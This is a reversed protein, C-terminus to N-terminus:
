SIDRWRNTMVFSLFYKWNDNILTAVRSWFFDEFDHSTRGDEERVKLDELKTAIFYPSTLIIM